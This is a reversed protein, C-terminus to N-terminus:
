RPVHRTGVGRALRDQETLVGDDVTPRSDGHGDVLDAGRGIDGVQGLRGGAIYEEFGVGGARTGPQAIQGLVVGEPADRLGSEFTQSGAVAQGQRDVDSRRNGDGGAESGARGNGDGDGAGQGLVEAVAQWTRPVRGMLASHGTWTYRDLTNLDEVLGGRLPNLHLYRVLQLLYPDEEVLISKYRGQVLPGVRHHRRNFAGVYGTLLRRMATALGHQSGHGATHGPSRVLLHFHNPLLTWALVELGTRECVAALRNIFDDRDRDDRFLARRELGRVMVHQLVGPADLRPGRPM